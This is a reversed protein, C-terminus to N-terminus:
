KINKNIVEEIVARLDNESIIEKDFWYEIWTEPPTFDIKNLNLMILGEIKLTRLAAIQSETILRVFRLRGDPIPRSEAAKSMIEFKVV